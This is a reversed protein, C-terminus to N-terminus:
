RKAADGVRPQHQLTSQPERALVAASQHLALREANERFAEDSDAIPFPGPALEGRGDADELNKAGFLLPAFCHM